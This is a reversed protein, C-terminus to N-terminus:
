PKGPEAGEETVEEDKIEGSAIRGFNVLQNLQSITLSLLDERGITPFARMIVRMLIEFEDANDKAYALSQIDRTNEIFSGVTAEMLVHEKAGIKVRVERFAPNIADDIDLFLPKAM